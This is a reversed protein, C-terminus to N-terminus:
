RDVLLVINGDLDRTTVFLCVSSDGAVETVELGRDRLATATSAVDDVRYSVPAWPLGPTAAIRSNPGMLTVRRSGDTLVASFSTASEVTLHLHECYWDAAAVPDHVPVFASAISTM